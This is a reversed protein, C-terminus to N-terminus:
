YICTQVKLSTIKVRKWFHHRFPPKAPAACSGGPLPWTWQSPTRCRAAPSLRPPRPATSRAPRSHLLVTKVCLPFHLTEKKRVSISKRTMRDFDVLIYHHNTTSVPNELPIYWGIIQCSTQQFCCSFSFIWWVVHNNSGRKWSVRM